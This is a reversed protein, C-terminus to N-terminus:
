DALLQAVEKLDSDTLELFVEGNVHNDMLKGVVADSVNKSRFHQFFLTSQILKPCGEGTRHFLLTAIEFM